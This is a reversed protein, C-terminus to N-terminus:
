HQVEGSTGFALRPIDKRNGLSTRCVACKSDVIDLVFPFGLSRSGFEHKYITIRFGDDGFGVALDSTASTEDFGLGRSVHVEVDGAFHDVINVEDEESEEQDPFLSDAFSCFGRMEVSCWVQGTNHQHTGASCDWVEICRPWVDEVKRNRKKSRM